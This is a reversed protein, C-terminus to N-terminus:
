WYISQMQTILSQQMTFLTNGDNKKKNILVLGSELLLKMSKIHNYRAAIHLPIRGLNDQPNVTAEHELLFTVAKEQNHRVASHLPTQGLADRVDCSAEESLLRKM